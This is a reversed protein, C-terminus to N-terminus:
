NPLTYYVKFRPRMWEERADSSAFQMGGPMQEDGHVFMFGYSQVAIEQEPVYLKTIDYIYTISSKWPMYDLTVMNADITKPQKEWTVEHEEWPEVIHKLYGKYFPNPVISFASDLYPDVNHVANLILEVRTITASKPLERRIDMFMLSRKTRMVTLIPETFFSAEFVPHDGFNESFNLDTIMADATSDPSTRFVKEYVTHSTGIGLLLPNTESTAILDEMPIQFTHESGDELMVKFTYIGSMGKVIFKNVTAEAKFRYGWGGPDFVKLYASIYKGPAMIMDAYKLYVATYFTLPRVIDIAFAVYGFDAPPQNNVPLVEVPIRSTVGATVKFYLPLPNKVLYALKSGAKPAAYVVDGQPNIVMFLSLFYAGNDLEVKQSIFETGFKYLPIVEKDLVLVSDENMVSVLLHYNLGEVTDTDMTASKLSNEIEDAVFSFELKGPIPNNEEQKECSTFAPALIVLLFM